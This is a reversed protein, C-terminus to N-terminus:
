IPRGASRMGRAGDQSEMTGEISARVAAIAVATGARVGAQQTVGRERAPPRHSVYALTEALRRRSSDLGVRMAEQQRTKSM